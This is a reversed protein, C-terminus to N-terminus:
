GNLEETANVLYEALRQLLSERQRRTLEQFLTIIQSETNQRQIEVCRHIVRELVQKQESDVAIKLNTLWLYLVV